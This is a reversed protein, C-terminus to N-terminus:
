PILEDKFDQVLLAKADDIRSELIVEELIIKRIDM